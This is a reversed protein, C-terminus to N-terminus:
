SWNITCRSKYRCLCEEESVKEMSIECQEMFEIIAEDTARRAKFKQPNKARNERRGANKADRIEQKSGTTSGQKRSPDRVYHNPFPVRHVFGGGNSPRRWGPSIERLKQDAIEVRVLIKKLEELLQELNEETSADVSGM